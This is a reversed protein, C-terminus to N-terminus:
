RTAARIQRLREVAEATQGTQILTGVELLSDRCRELEEIYKVLDCEALHVNNGSGKVGGCDCNTIKHKKPDPLIEVM